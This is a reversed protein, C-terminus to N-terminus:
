GGEQSVVPPGGGIAVLWGIVAALIAVVFGAVVTGLRMSSLTQDVFTVPISTRVVGVPAGAEDVRVAVYMMSKQLTGSFRTTVGRGERFAQAIEPRKGHNEMQFRDHESDGVVEGGVGVFTIRTRSSAGLRQCLADVAITDGAALYESAQGEVLRARAELDTAVLELFGSRQLSSAYWGMVAVAVLTIFLYSPYLQWLIRRRAM